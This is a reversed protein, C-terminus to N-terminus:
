LTRVSPTDCCPKPTTLPLKLTNRSVNTALDRCWCGGYTDVVSINCLRIVVLILSCGTETFCIAIM